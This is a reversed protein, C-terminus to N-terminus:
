KYSKELDILYNNIRLELFDKENMEGLIEFKFKKLIDRLVVDGSIKNKHNLLSGFDILYSELGSIEYQFNELIDRLVVDGSIENKNNLLSEFDILHSYIRFERFDTVNKVGLIGYQFKGM